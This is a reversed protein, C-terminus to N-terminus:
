SRVQALFREVEDELVRAQGSLRAASDLVGDARTGTHRVDDRLGSISTNVTGSSNAASDVNHAIEETAARQQEVAAAITASIENVKVITGSIASVAGVARDTAQQVQEIQRSIEETAKATQTALAKVENAVVAFGKGAEGARAAEITANLALLNTQSAIATIMAVVEDIRGVSQALGGILQSTGEAEAVAEASISNAQAAERGIEAISAALEEAAAAVTQVNASAEASAAAVADGTSAARNTVTRMDQAAGQMDAAAQSVAGVVSAVSAHFTDALQAMAARREAESQAAARSQQERLQAVAKANDKFVALARAMAGIEDGRDAGTVAVELQGQALQGMAATLERVPRSISRGSVWALCCGVAVAALSLLLVQLRARSEATKVQERVQTQRQEAARKLDATLASMREGTAVQATMHETLDVNRAILAEYSQGYDRVAAALDDLGAAQVLTATRAILVRARDVEAGASADLTRRVFLRAELMAAHAKVLGANGTRDAEREIGPAAIDGFKRIDLHAAKRRALNDAVVQIGAKYRGFEGRLSEVLAAQAADSSPMIVLRQELADRAARQIEANKDTTDRVLERVAFRLVTADHDVLQAASLVDTEATLAVTGDALTQFTRMALAALVGMLVVMVAFAAALRKGITWDRM